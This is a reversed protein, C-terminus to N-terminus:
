LISWLMKFGMVYLLLAFLKRLNKVPLVNTLKAGLPAFLMGTLVLGGLAPLYVFGLSYNPLNPTGWGNIIYGLSGAVAIPFGITASTGIAKQLKINCFTLFTTSLIGGGIGVLSSLFGIIFGALSMGTWGPLSRSPNTKFNLLIHTAIYFEFVIFIAKLWFSSLKAVVFSGIFTGILIGIVIKWVVDWLVSGHKNHAILSSFSTFLINGMSTGLALHSIVDPSFNLTTFTITLFPVIIVGGGIGFM